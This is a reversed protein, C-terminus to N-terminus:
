NKLFINIKKGIEDAVNGFSICASADFIKTYTGVHEKLEDKSYDHVFIKPVDRTTKGLRADQPLSYVIGDSGFLESDVIIIEYHKCRAMDGASQDNGAKEVIYRGGSKRNLEDLLASHNTLYLIKPTLLDKIKLAFEETSPFVIMEEEVFKQKKQLYTKEMHNLLFVVPYEFGFENNIDRVLETGTIGGNLFYRTVVASHEGEGLVDIVDQAACRDVLCIKESVPKGAINRVETLAIGAGRLPTQNPTVYLIKKVNGNANLGRNM